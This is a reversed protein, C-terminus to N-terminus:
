QEIIRVDGGSLAMSRVSCSTKNSGELAGFYVRGGLFCTFRAEGKSTAETSSGQLGSDLEVTFIRYVGSSDKQTVIIGDPYSCFREIGSSSSWVEKASQSKLDVASIKTGAGSSRKEWVLLTDENLPFSGCIEYGAVSEYATTRKTGDLQSAYVERAGEKAYTFLSNGAIRWVVSKGVDCMTRRSQGDVDCRCVCGSKLYYVWGDDVQCLSWDDCSDLMARNTGDSDVCMVSSSGEIVQNFVVKNEIINLHYLNKASSPASYITKKGSGDESCRVISRTDWETGEVPRAFYLFGNDDMGMYGGNILNGISGSKGAYAANAEGDVSVSGTTSAEINGDGVGVGVSVSGSVSDSEVADNDPRLLGAPDIAILAVLIAVSVGVLALAVIPAKSRVRAAVGNGQPHPAPIPDIGASQEQGGLVVTRERVISGVSNTQRANDSLACGCNTCFASGEDNYTGCRMCYM